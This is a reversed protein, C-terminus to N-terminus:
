IVIMGGPGQRRKFTPINEEMPTESADTLIQDVINIHERATKFNELEELRSLLAQYEQITLFVGIRQGEKDTLYKENLPLKDM